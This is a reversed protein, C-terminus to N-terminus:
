KISNTNLWRHSHALRANRQPKAVTTQTARDDQQKGREQSLMGWATSLKNGPQPLLVKQPCLQPSWENKVSPATKRQTPFVKTKLVAVCVRENM